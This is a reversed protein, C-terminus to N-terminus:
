NLQPRNFQVARYDLCISPQCKLDSSRSYKVVCHVLMQVSNASLITVCPCSQLTGDALLLPDSPKMTHTFHQLSTSLIDHYGNIYIFLEYIIAIKLSQLQNLKM